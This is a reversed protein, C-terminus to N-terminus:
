SKKSFWGGRGGPAGGGEDKTDGGCSQTMKLDKLQELLHAITEDKEKDKARLKEVEDELENQDGVSGELEDARKKAINLQITLQNNQDKLENLEKEMTTYNNLDSTLGDLNKSQEMEMIHDLTANLEQMQKEKEKIIRGSDLKEQKLKKELRNNEAQLKKVKDELNELELLPQGSSVDQNLAAKVFQQREARPTYRRQGPTAPSSGTRSAEISDAMAFLGAGDDSKWRRPKSPTQSEYNTIDEKEARLAALKSKSKALPAPSAHESKSFLDFDGSKSKNVTKRKPRSHFDIDGSKSKKLGGRSPATKKMLKAVEEESLIRTKGNGLLAEMEGSKTRRVKVTVKEKVRPTPSKSRNAKEKDKSKKKSSKSGKSAKSKTESM